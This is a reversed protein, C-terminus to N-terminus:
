VDGANFSSGYDPAANETSWIDCVQFTDINDGRFNLYWDLIYIPSFEVNNRSFEKM